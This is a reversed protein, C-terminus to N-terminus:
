DHRLIGSVTGIFDIIIIVYAIILIVKGLGYPLIGIIKSLFPNVIWICLLAAAGWVVTYPLNVYGGFNFRRRSYDKWKQHFIRELTVGTFSTIIFSLIVGGAFLFVPQDKLEPLFLAFGVAGFGYSPCWPGFLFGVDIFKKEKLAAGSTGIVWGAFSYLLFFWFVEYWTYSM